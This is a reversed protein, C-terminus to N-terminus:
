LHRVDDRSVTATRPQEARIVLSDLQAVLSAVRGQQLASEVTPYVLAQTNDPALRAPDAKHVKVESV